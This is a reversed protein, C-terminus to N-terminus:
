SLRMDRSRMRAPLRQGVHIITRRASPEIYLAIISCIAILIAMLVALIVWKDMMEGFRAFVAYGIHQHLLYLPYTLGGLWIALPKSVPLAPAFVCIAVAAIAIPGILAIAVPDRAVGYVREFYPAADFAAYVSWAAALLMATLALPTIKRRLQYLAIGFAFSGAHATLFLREIITVNLLLENIASLALWGIVLKPWHREFVGLAIFVFVWGYFILEYIITWYAGDLFPQGLIQTFFVGHTLWQGVTPKSITPVPWITLVIATLTACLIFTPWLRAFRSVAFQYATRGESSMAIVYGSITFFIPIGIDMWMAFRAVEPFAVGGGEGTLEMRFGYHFGVVLMASILRLIDLNVLRSQM